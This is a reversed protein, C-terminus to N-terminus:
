VAPYECPGPRVTMINIIVSFHQSGQTQSYHIFLSFISSLERLLSSSPFDIDSNIKITQSMLVFNPSMKNMLSMRTMKLEQVADFQIKTEQLWLKEKIFM